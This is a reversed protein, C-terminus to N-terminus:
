IYGIKKKCKKGDKKPCTKKWHGKKKVLSPHSSSFEGAATLKKLDLLQLFLQSVGQIRSLGSFHHCPRSPLIKLEIPVQNSRKQSKNTPCEPVQYNSSMSTFNCFPFWTTFIHFCKWCTLGVTWSASSFTSSMSFWRLSNSSSDPSVLVLIYLHSSKIKAYFLTISSPSRMIRNTKTEGSSPRLAMKTQELSTWPWQWSILLVFASPPWSM